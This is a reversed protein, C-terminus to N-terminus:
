KRFEVACEKALADKFATFSQEIREDTLTEADSQFTLRYALSRKGAGLKDSKFEDFLAIDKLTPDSVKRLVAEIQAHSLDGDAVFAMDRKVTPYPSISLTEVANPIQKLAKFLAEVDVEFVFLNQRFKLNGQLAPHLEGLQGASKGPHLYAIEQSPRQWEVSGALGLLNFLNELIGKVRFFDPEEKANWDGHLRSGTLLGACTLKEIVGSNKEDQKGRKFYTRGLEYIWCDENGQAQNFKAVEIINPLLSQRMLTHDSSHSNVVEVLADRDLTFGTKELLNEGILSTTIVEQLGQGRMAQGIKSLLRSRLTRDVAVTKHPLTYPVKDYGYIRIVEEILDIERSVDGQRFSPVSVLVNASEKTAQLLFGLKKLIRAVTEKEVGIGLIKEIRAFRLTIQPKEVPPPASEVLRVFDAGAHEKLLEVARLLANRCNEIDVGREFRASAESRLGVSKASKRIVAPPFYAAELFLHKSYEDIETTLGGMVGGLAVPRDNMTVLISEETLARETSDLTVLKEHPRARRVDIEGSTNLKIQDFAHLPQGMELMVYNTIDVVNSISRVGAAALRRVMWVPSPGLRIIRMMVGGYYRCVTPDQLKIELETRGPIPIFRQLNPTHLTRDFLAAVERAVGIVSMLDGRNATPAVELVTDGSLKLAEKLDQGLQEDTTIADLPWIGDEDHSYQTELGLEELSCVMGASEIGRIKAKGLTFMGGEKRNIVSAGEKAFAIRIGERVNPAGCVVKTQEGGLDVSVLRLRDANPHQEVATVKGVVVNSFVPGIVDIHEVELGANTLADAIARPELGDVDVFQSLWELSIRM